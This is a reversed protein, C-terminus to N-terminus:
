ATDALEALAGDVQAERRDLDDPAPTELGSSIAARPNQNVAIVQAFRDPDPRAEPDDLVFRALPTFRDLDTLDAMAVRFVRCGARPLTQEYRDQRREIERAYWYCLQYDDWGQWEAPAVVDPDDPQLLVLRGNGTRAPVAGVAFLSLAVARAPRTLLIVDPLIRMELLPELFGKCYLHSTDAYASWPGGQGMEQGMEQGAEKVAEQGAAELRAAIAPLKEHYLWWRAAKPVSQVTRMVYNLMPAAEHEALVGLCDAMLRALLKTGSRGTTVTFFLRTQRLRRLVEQPDASAPAM